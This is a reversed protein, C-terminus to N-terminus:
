PDFAIYKESRNAYGGRHMAIEHEVRWWVGALVHCFLRNHKGKILSNM